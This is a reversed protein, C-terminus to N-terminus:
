FLCCCTDSVGGNGEEFSSGAPKVGSLLVPLESPNQPGLLRLQVNMEISLKDGVSRHQPLFAINTM